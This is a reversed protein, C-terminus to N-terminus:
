KKKIRVFKRPNFFVQMKITRKNQPNRFSLLYDYMLKLNTTSNIRPKGLGVFDLFCIIIFVNYQM